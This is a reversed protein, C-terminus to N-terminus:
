ARRGRLARRARPARRTSRRQESSRASALLDQRRDDVLQQTLFPHTLM